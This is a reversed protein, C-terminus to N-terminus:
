EEESPTWALDIGDDLLGRDGDVTVASCVDVDAIKDEM